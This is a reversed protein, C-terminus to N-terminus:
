FTIGSVVEEAIDVAAPLAMLKANQATTLGSGTSYGIGHDASFGIAGGTNDWLTISLGTVSDRGWGDTVSLATGIPCKIRTNEWIFNVPDPSDCYAIEDDIGSDSAMWAVFAAYITPWGMTGGATDVTILDTGLDSVTIEGLALIAPGDLAHTNYTTDAAQSANYSIAETGDTIGCVGIYSEIFTRASTTQCYAVRLRIARAAAAATGDTWTYPFTPAGNYLTTVNRVFASFAVSADGTGSAKTLTGSADPSGLGYVVITGAGATISASVVTWTIDNHTYTAGATPTITIGSVTLTYDVDAVHIQSNAIAGSVTVSQYLEPAAIVVTAGDSTVDGAVLATTGSITITVTGTTAKVHVKDTSGATITCSPFSIATVSSGLEIAYLAGTGDFTCSDIDGAPNASWSCAADASTTDTVTTNTVTAGGFAVEDNGSFTAGSIPADTDGTFLFNSIVEGQFSVTAGSSTAPDITFNQEAGLGAAMASAVFRMTDGSAAKMGITIENAPVNWFPQAFNSYAQPTNLLTATTDLYTATTGDGFRVSTKVLTADGQKGCLGTYGWGNLAYDLFKINLPRGASGGVLDSSGHLLLNRFSITRTGATGARHVFIGIKDISAWDITGVAAFPTSADVAIHNTVLTNVPILHKPSLQFLAANGADATASDGFAIVVGSSGIQVGTLTMFWEITFIKGTMDLTSPLAWWNGSWEAAAGTISFQTYRGTFPPLGQVTNDVTSTGTALNIGAVAEPAGGWVCFTSPANMTLSTLSEHATGYDGFWGVKTMAARCDASKGGSTKNKIALSIVGIRSSLAAYATQATDAATAQQVTGLAYGIFTSNDDFSRMLKGVVKDSLFRCSTAGSIRSAAFYVITCDNESPTSTDLTVSVANSEKVQATLNFATTEADRWQMLFGQWIATGASLSVTPDAATGSAVKVKYLAMRQGLTVDLEVIESWGSGAISLTGSNAGCVIGLLLHDDDVLTLGYSSLTVPFSGSAALPALDIPDIVQFAM